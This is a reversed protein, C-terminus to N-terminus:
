VRFLGSHPVFDWVPGNYGFEADPRVLRYVGGSIGAVKLTLFGVKVISGVTWNQKSNKIM